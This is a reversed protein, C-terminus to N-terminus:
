MFTKIFTYVFCYIVSLKDYYFYLIDLNRFNPYKNYYKMISLNQKESMMWISSEIYKEEKKERLPVRGFMDVWPNENEKRVFRQELPKAFHVEGSDYPQLM